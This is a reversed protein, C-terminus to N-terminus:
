LATLYSASGTACGVTDILATFPELEAEDTMMM